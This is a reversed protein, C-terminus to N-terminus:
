LSYIISINGYIIYSGPPIYHAVAISREVRTKNKTILIIIYVYVYKYM